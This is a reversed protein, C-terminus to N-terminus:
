APLVLRFDGTKYFSSGAIGTEGVLRAEFLREYIPLAWLELRASLPRLSGRWYM